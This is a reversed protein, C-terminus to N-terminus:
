HGDRVCPTIPFPLIARRPFAPFLPRRADACGAEEDRPARRRRRSWNRTMGLTDLARLVPAGPVGPRARRKEPADPTGNRGPLLRSAAFRLFFDSKHLHVGDPM